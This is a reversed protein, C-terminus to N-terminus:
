FMIESYQRYLLHTGAVYDDFFVVLPMELLSFLCWGVLWPTYHRITVFIQFHHIQVNILISVFGVAWLDETKGSANAVGMGYAFLPVYCCVFGNWFSYLSWVMMRKFTPRNYYKM